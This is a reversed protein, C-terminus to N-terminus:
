NSHPLFHTLRSEDIKALYQEIYDRGKNQRLIYETDKLGQIQDLVDQVYKDDKVLWKFHTLEFLPDYNLVDGRDFHIVPRGMMLAELALTTGWYLVADCRVIEDSVKGVTSVNMNKPLDNECKGLSALILDLSLVPHTRINFKVAPLKRAQDIAYALLEAVEVVGELAVLLTFPQNELLRRPLLKLDYLYQYRLACGPYINDDSFCSYRKLIDATKKGTTIVRDPHPMFDSECPSLFVGAASQPMASHQYGMILLDPSESRLGMVFMREWPNGEYTMLCTNLKYNRSLNRAVYTYLYDTISVKRGGSVLIERLLPSFNVQQFPVKDPVKISALLYHSFLHMAALLVDRLRLFSEVPLVTQGKLNRMKQYTLFKDAFGQSLTVVQLDGGLKAELYSALDGFFPDSFSDAKSFSSQYAFSKIIYVPKDKIIKDGVAGFSARTKFIKVYLFVIEMLLFVWIQLKGRVRSFFRSGYGACIQVSISKSRAYDEIAAIVPWSVGLACFDVKDLECRKLARLCSVFSNLLEPMPSAFRNKSAILTAWWVGNQTNQEALKGMASVYDDLISKRDGESLPPLQVTVCGKEELQGCMDLYKNDLCLYAVRGGAQPRMNNLFRSRFFNGSALIHM